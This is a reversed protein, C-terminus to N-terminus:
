IHRSMTTNKLLDLIQIFPQKDHELHGLCCLLIPVAVSWYSIFYKITSLFIHLFSIFSNNNVEKLKM